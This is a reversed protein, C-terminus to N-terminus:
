WAGLSGPNSLPLHKEPKPHRKKSPAKMQQTHNWHPSQGLSSLWKMYGRMYALLLIKGLPQSIKVGTIQTSCLGLAVDSVQLAGAPVNSGARPSAPPHM